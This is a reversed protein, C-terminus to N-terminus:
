NIKIEIINAPGGLSENAIFLRGSLSFCIGEPQAFEAPDLLHLSKIQGNRNLILVKQFEADL